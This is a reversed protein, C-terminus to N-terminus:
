LKINVRFGYSRASPLAMDEVGSVIKNGQIATLEPDFHKIKSAVFLNRGVLSVNINEFPTKALWKKPLSYGLSMERLKLYSADLTANSEINRDYWKKYYTKADVFTTNEVYSGNEKEVVGNVKIGEEPRNETTILNGSTSAISVTRSVVDGGQHWDLLFSLSFGKYKFGNNM